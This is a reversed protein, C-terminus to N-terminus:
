EDLLMKVVGRERHNLCNLRTMLVDQEVDLAEAAECVTRAWRLVDVLAELPILRRAAEREVRAEVIPPQCGVHGLEVHVLEHALTCRAEVWTLDSRLWVQYGDTAGLAGGAIDAVEHVPVKAASATEWPDKM